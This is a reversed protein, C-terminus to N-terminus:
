KGINELLSEYKEMFGKKGYFQEVRVKLNGGLEQRLDPNLVLQTLAEAFAKPDGSSVLMGAKGFDVVEVCQGVNTVVVPLGALGYELLSVPLGESVSSLVGIDAQYLLDATNTVAGRIEIVDRLNREAILAILKRYYEDNAYGGALILKFELEPMKQRVMAIAEVLTFHDKQARFNAISVIRLNEDCKEIKKSLSLLPFNGIYLINENHVKTNLRAWAELKENVSIIGDIFHSIRQVAKKRGNNLKQEDGSHDHWIIKIKPSIVKIGVAWFVSNSHAHIINIKNLRVFRLLRLFATLDYSSRKHLCLFPIQEHLFEKLPGAERSSCLYVQYPEQILANSINVAMREAGGISLTDIFQLIRTKEM